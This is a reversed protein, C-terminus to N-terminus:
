LELNLSTIWGEDRDTALLFLPCRFQSWIQIFKSSKTYIYSWIFSNTKFQHFKTGNNWCTLRFERKYHNYIVHNMNM